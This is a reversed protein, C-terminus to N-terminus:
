AELPRRLHRAISGLLSDSTFPKPLCDASGAVRARARDFPGDGDTLMVVPIAGLRANQKLLACTQYGDLRPMEVDCFIIDPQTDAARALAEFGDDAAVFECGAQGLITEANRRVTTNDDIVLVKLGALEATDSM